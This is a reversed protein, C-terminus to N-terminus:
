DSTVRQRDSWESSSKIVRQCLRGYLSVWIPGIICSFVHMYWIGYPRDDIAQLCKLVIFFPLYSLMFGTLLSRPWRFLHQRQRMLIVFPWALFLWGQLVLMGGIYFIGILLAEADDEYSSIGLIQRHIIYVLLYCIGLSVIHSAAIAVLSLVGRLMVRPTDPTQKAASM